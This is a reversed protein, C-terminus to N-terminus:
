GVVASCFRDLAAIDMPHGTENTVTVVMKHQRLMIVKQDSAGTAWATDTPLSPFYRDANSRFCAAYPTGSHSPTLVSDVWGEPLLRENNWVGDQVHLLGFKTYDRLTAFGSGSAILNGVIDASQQYSTMGIRDALLAYVTQHYPLGRREIQDRIIAGLVNIGTNVYRFVSGPVTAVLARQATAFADEGNHYVFSNEFGLSSAGNADVTAYGLGSRMRMLHDLTILHHIGRADRWLPAPAPAHLDHLWGEHLMRGILTANIAKTMSWSPTPRDPGGHASYREFLISDPTAAMLGYLGPSNRFLADAADDLRSPNAATSAEGLPWPQTLNPTPRDLPAPDFQLAAEGILIGGFDRRAIATGVVPAAGPRHWTVTVRGALWAAEVDAAHAPDEATQTLDGPADAPKRRFHRLATERDLGTVYMMDVIRKAAYNVVRQRMPGPSIDYVLPVVPGPANFVPTADALSPNLAPM